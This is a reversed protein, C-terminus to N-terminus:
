ERSGYDRDLSSTSSPHTFPSTRKPAASASAAPQPGSATPLANTSGPSVAPASTSAPSASASTAVVASEAIGRPRPEAGGGVLKAISLGAIALITLAVVALLVTRGVHSAERSAEPLPAQVRTSPSSRGPTPYDRQPSSLTRADPSLGPRPTGPDALVTAQVSLPTTPSVITPASFDHLQPVANTPASSDVTPTELLSGRRTELPLGAIRAIRDIAPRAHPPAFPALAEALAGLTQFRAEPKKSLCCLVVAELGPPIDYRRTAMPPPELRMVQSCLAAFSDAVFPLTGTLLEYMIVGLAWIDARLDVTKSSLMQEPPMYVPSGVVDNTRTLAPGFGPALLKSVGFDLVKILASGDSRRTLFLNSPKLDRHVIGLAHAEALGESAQLLFDVAEAVPLRERERLYLSLDKGALYEMVLFPSGDELVGVDSVRAVHESKIKAAARAERSFREVTEPEQKAEQGLVKIAVREDLGVHTAAVVIGMGGRGVVRDVRYRGALMTGPKLEM